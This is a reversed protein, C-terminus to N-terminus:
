YLKGIMPLTTSGDSSQIHLNPALLRRTQVSGDSQQITADMVIGFANGSVIFDHDRNYIPGHFGFHNTNQSTKAMAQIITKQNDESLGWGSMTHKTDSYSASVGLSFFSFLSLGGSIETKSLEDFHSYQSADLMGRILNNMNIVDEPTMCLLYFDIDVTLESFAPVTYMVGSVQGQGYSTISIGDFSQGGGGGDRPSRLSFVTPLGAATGRILPRQATRDYSREVEETRTM